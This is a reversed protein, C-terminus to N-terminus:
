LHVEIWSVVDDLVVAQEPENFVEHYLGPYVKLSVDKSGVCEVLKRSGAVPILKDAEGHEVLLPATIAAARRPM